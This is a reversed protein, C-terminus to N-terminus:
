ETDGLIKEVLKYVTTCGSLKPWDACPPHDRQKARKIAAVIREESFSRIHPQIDKKFGPIHQKLRESCGQSSDIKTGDEFHLLLWYEFKPNSLAFGYNERQLSWRYLQNLQDDLWQDRDVVIWAEDTSKLEERRIQQEIAKLVKEPSSKNGESLCHIKIISEKNFLNFYQPETRSGETAILYLKRYRRKGPPRSLRRRDVAM